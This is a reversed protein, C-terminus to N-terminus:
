KDALKKKLLYINAIDDSFSQPSVIVTIGNHVMEVEERFNLAARVANQASIYISESQLAIYKRM